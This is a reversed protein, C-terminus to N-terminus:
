VARLVSAAGAATADAGVCRSFFDASRAVVERHEQDVTVM